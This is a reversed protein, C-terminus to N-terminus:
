PVLGSCLFGRVGGVVPGECLGEDVRQLLHGGLGDFVFALFADCVEEVGGCCVLKSFILRACAGGVIGDVRCRVV